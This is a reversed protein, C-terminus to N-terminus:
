ARLRHEETAAAAARADPEFSAPMPASPPWQLPEPPLDDGPLAMGTPWSADVPLRGDGSFAVAVCAPWYRGAERLLDFGSGDPLDLDVLLLAPPCRRLEALAAQATSHMFAIRWGPQRAFRDRWPRTDHREHLVLGVGRRDALYGQQGVSACGVMCLEGLCDAAAMMVVSRAEDNSGRTQKSTAM